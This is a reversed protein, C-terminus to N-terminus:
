PVRGSLAFAAVVAETFARACHGEPDLDPDLITLELGVAQPSRLLSALLSTLEELRLGEPNPSDVAPMVSLDLVDADVHIWFGDLERAELLARAEDGVADAGRQRIATLPLSPIRSTDFEQVALVATDEDSRSLGLHVVDEERLYPKLGDLDCLADPGHGTALALDLGAATLRGALAARDKDYSFDDHADIFALGHTGARRLALSSGVLVSCDGGLLLVFRGQARLAGIRDALAVSYRGLAAGNRFGTDPEAEPSYAPPMVMGADEAGLRTVIGQARLARPLQYVGPIVGPASPRLGLNSPADLVSIPAFSAM